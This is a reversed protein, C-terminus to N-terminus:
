EGFVQVYYAQGDKVTYGVGMKKWPDLMNARHGGSNALGILFVKYHINGGAVNEGVGGAIRIGNRKATDNIKDGYSDVHSINNYKAMDNAKITALSNLTDDLSLASKGTKSRLDNVFKLSEITVVSRDTNDIKKQVNDYDNPYIPLFDGYVIPGNYAAFGNDYNVEVLYAGKRKLPITKEFVKERKMYGDTDISQTDFTHKEVNGDPLTIMIDSKVQKGKKVIGRILISGNEVTATINENREERHGPVLMMTKKFVTVPTTYTDHSFATSSKQADVQISVAKGMDVSKM